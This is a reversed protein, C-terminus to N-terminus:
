SHVFLHINSGFSAPSTFPNLGTNLGSNLRICKMPMPPIPILPIAEIRASCPNYPLRSRIYLFARNGSITRCPYLNKDAMAPQMKFILSATTYEEAIFSSLGSSKAALFFPRRINLLAWISALSICSLIQTATVASM